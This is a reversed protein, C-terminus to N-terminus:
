IVGAFMAPQGLGMPKSPSNSYWDARFAAWGRSLCERVTAAADLGCKAGDEKTIKWAGETLPLRKDKRMSLWAEAYSEDVGEAKLDQSTLKKASPKAAADGSAGRNEEQNEEQNKRRSDTVPVRSVTVVGRSHSTDDRCASPIKLEYQSSIRLGDITRHHVVVLDSEALEVLCRQVTRDSMGCEEALTKIRPTCRGTEHNTRNALMLLVLKQLAPVKQEVAWTMAQFSM